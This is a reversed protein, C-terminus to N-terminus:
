SNIKIKSLAMVSIDSYVTSPRLFCLFRMSPFRTVLRKQMPLVCWPHSWFLMGQRVMELNDGPLCLQSFFFRGQAELAVKSLM